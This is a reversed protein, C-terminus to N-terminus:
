HPLSVVFVVLRFTTKRSGLITGCAMLWQGPTTRSIIKDEVTSSMRLSEETLEVTVSASETEPRAMAVSDEGSREDAAGHWVVMVLTLVV